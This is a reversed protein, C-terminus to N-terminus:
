FSPISEDKRPMDKTELSANKIFKGFLNQVVTSAIQRLRNRDAANSFSLDNKQHTYAKNLLREFIDWYTPQGSIKDTDQQKLLLLGTIMLTATHMNKDKLGFLTTTTTTKPPDLDAFTCLSLMMIDFVQTYSRSPFIPTFTIM